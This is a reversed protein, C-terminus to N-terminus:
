WRWRRECTSHSSTRWCRELRWPRLTTPLHFQRIGGLWPLSSLPVAKQGVRRAVWRSHEDRRRQARRVFWVNKTMTMVSADHHRTRPRTPQSRAGLAPELRRTSAQWPLPAFRVAERAERLAAPAGEKECPFRAATPIKESRGRGSWRALDRNTAAIIFTRATSNRVFGKRSSTSRWATEPSDFWCTPSSSPMM